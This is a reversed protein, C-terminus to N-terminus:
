FRASLGVRASRPHGPSINTNNHANLYYTRGTLNNVNVQLRLSESLRFFAAADAVAYGPVTVTNDVGAFMASRAVVGLALGLRPHLQYHNWLSLSHRPAQAAKLGARAAATDTRVYVDQWSYGGAVSWGHGIVGSWGMEFGNSRQSGTQLIRGPDNPDVARTNTRNLRYVAGSLTLGRGLDWKLGAEYNTFKEPKMQQTVSTLAAFQDGSSPLYSVSFSSYVSVMTWPKWVLGARPSILRDTRSLVEGNRYNHHRLDFSELRVGLVARLRRTLGAQDQLYVSAVRNIVRNNADSASQRFGFPDTVLPQAYPVLVTTSSGNFYGTNRLNFTRQHGAEFGAVVTHRVSGTQFSGLVDTQNFLNRRHTSSNYASISVLSRDSTVAGPVFNQYGRDYDGALTRNRVLLRGLEWELFASGLHVRAGAHSDAPNGYFTSIPVEAPRGQYSPIGRDAVRDDRLREYSLTLRAGGFPKLALAPNVAYRKLQVFDRFSDSDEFMGNLRFAARDGVARNLDLTSRKNHFSGGLLVIEGLPSWAPSKTVRNIVGGGSGRGFIMGNPGMLAEIRELNYVDRFYQVDDRVGNVFFDATSTNGRITLQDRNNEGQQATVGPIYRVAEAISAMMQDQILERSIVTLSQPVDLLPAPTKLGSEVEPVRYGAKEVVTIMEYRGALHLVIKLEGQSDPKSEVTLSEPRFGPAEVQLRYEGARVQFLFRGRLDTVTELEEPPGLLRVKAGEVPAGTPDEVLGRIGSSQEAAAPWHGGWAAIAWVAVALWVMRRIRSDAM